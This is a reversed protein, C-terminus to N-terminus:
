HAGRAKAEHALKWHVAESLQRAAKLRNFNATHHGLEIRANELRILKILYDRIDLLTPNDHLLVCVTRVKADFYAPDDLLHQVGRDIVADVAERTLSRIDPASTM